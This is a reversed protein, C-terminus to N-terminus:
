VHWWILISADCVMDRQLLFRVRGNGFVCVCKAHYLPRRRKLFVDETSWVCCSLTSSSPTIFFSSFWHGISFVVAFHLANCRSVQRCHRKAHTRRRPQPQPLLHPSSSGRRAAVANPPARPQQLHLGLCPALTAHRGFFVEGVLVIVHLGSAGFKNEYLHLPVFGHFHLGLDHILNWTRESM